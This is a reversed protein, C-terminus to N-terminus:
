MRFLRNHQYTKVIHQDTKVIDNINIQIQVRGSTLDLTFILNTNTITAPIEDIVPIPYQPYKTIITLKRYYISYRWAETDDSNKGGYKKYLVAPLAVPSAVPSAPYIPM